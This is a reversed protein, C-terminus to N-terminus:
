HSSKFCFRCEIPLFDYDILMTVTEGMAENEVVV